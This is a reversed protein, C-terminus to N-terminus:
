QINRSYVVRSTFRPQHSALLGAVESALTKGGQHYVVNVHHGYWRVHSEWTMEHARLGVGKMSSPVEDIVGGQGNEACDLCVALLSSSRDATNREIRPEMARM